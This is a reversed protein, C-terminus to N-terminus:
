RRAWLLTVLFGLGAAAAVTGMPHKTASSEVQELVERSVRSTSSAAERGLMELSSKAHEAARQVTAEAKHSSQRAAERARHLQARAEASGRLLRDAWLGSKQAPVDVPPTATASPAPPHTPRLFKWAGAFFSALLPATAPESGDVDAASSRRRAISLLLQTAFAGAAAAVVAAVLPREAIQQRLQQDLNQSHAPPTVVIQETAGSTGRENPLPAAQSTPHQM